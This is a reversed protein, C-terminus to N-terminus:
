IEWGSWSSSPRSVAQREVRFRGWTVLDFASQLRDPHLLLVWVLWVARASASDIKGGAIWRQFTQVPVCLLAGAGGRGFRDQLDVLFGRLEGASPALAFPLVYWKTSLRGPRM